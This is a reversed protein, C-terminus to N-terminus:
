PSFIITNDPTGIREEFILEKDEMLKLSLIGRGSTNTVECGQIAQGRMILTQNGNGSDTLPRRITNNDSLLVDCWGEFTVAPHGIGVVIMQLQKDPQADPNVLTRTTATLFYRGDPAQGYPAKTTGGMRNKGLSVYGLVELNPRYEYGDVVGVLQADEPVPLFQVDVEELDILRQVTRDLMASMEQDLNERYFLRTVATTIDQDAFAAEIRSKFTDLPEAHSVVSIWMLVSVRFITRFM